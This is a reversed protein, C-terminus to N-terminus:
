AAAKTLQQPELVDLTKVVSCLQMGKAALVYRHTRPVKRILGHARLLRLQRSIRACLRRRDDPNVVSDYLVNRMDKNRFGNIAWEGQSLFALMEYDTQKWLNLARFKKGQYSVRQSVSEFIERIKEDTQAAALFALYRENSQQSVQARRHLDAVGKRMHQWSPAREPDDNPRRFVKFGRPNNITTEVRLINGAKNYMKVSNRNTSHKVRCGEYRRKRDGRIDGSVRPPLEATADIKGLFRMVNASDTCQMGYLMLHPFIRDLINTSRFMIDTAVETEDASWYYELPDSGFLDDLVGFYRCRMAECKEAWNIQFQQDLLAQAALPDSIWRFCNDAQIYNIGASDMQRALWERGNLCGKITFPLWSQLRMHGFGWQEDIWYFYIWICRRHRMCLELKKSSRNGCVTPSFSPEVVSLMCVPGSKIGNKKAIERALAEKDTKPSQLYRTEIGLSDATRECATRVQQTKDEAWTKFDKLLINRVGMYSGLGAISALWRITGRLAIRDLGTIAGFVDNKYKDMFLKM